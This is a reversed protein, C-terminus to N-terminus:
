VKTVAFLKRTLKVPNKFQKQHINDNVARTVAKFGEGVDDICLVGFPVLWKTVHTIDKSVSIYDHDGDIFALNVQFNSSVIKSFTEITGKHITIVDEVKYLNVFHKFVNLLSTDKEYAPLFRDEFTDDYISHDIHYAKFQNDIMWNGDARKKWDELNPFMDVCYLHSGTLKAAMAMVVSSRGCWSGIELIDGRSDSLSYILSFLSILEDPGTFGPITSVVSEVFDVVNCENL